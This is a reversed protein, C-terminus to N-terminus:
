KKQNIAGKNFLFLCLVNLAWAHWIDLAALGFLGHAVYNWLLMVPVAFLLGLGICLGVFMIIGLLIVILAKM